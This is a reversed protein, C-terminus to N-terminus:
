YTYVTNPSGVVRSSSYGLDRLLSIVREDDGEVILVPRDRELLARMGTMAEHEHGEVDMKVLQVPPLGLADVSISMVGNGASGIQARYHDPWGDRTPVAMKVEATSASVAANLLTVNDCGAMNVTLHRFTEAMPEFAIVRGHPGVLRSMRLTWKGVNAGIDLVTMGPRILDGLMAWEPEPSDFTGRRISLRYWATQALSRMPVPLKYALKKAIAVM